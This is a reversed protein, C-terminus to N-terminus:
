SEDEDKWLPQWSQRDSIKYFDLGTMKGFIEDVGKKGKKEKESKKQLLHLDARGDNVKEVQDWSCRLSQDFRQQLYDHLCLPGHEYLYSEM